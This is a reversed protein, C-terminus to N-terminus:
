DYLRAVLPRHEEVVQLLANYQRAQDPNMSNEAAYEALIGLRQEVVPWEEVYIIQDVVDWEDITQIVNPLDHWRELLACLLIDIHEQVVPAVQAM